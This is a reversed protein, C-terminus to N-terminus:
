PVNRGEVFARAATTQDYGIAEQGAFLLEYKIRDPNLDQWQRLAVAKRGEITLAPEGHATRTLDQETAAKFQASKIEVILARGDKRRIIFDPTYRHWKGDEGLYEVYFDTKDPTTLAGTFYIDEVQDPHLNVHALLQDFFSQEPASDFNYPDYHFGFGAPDRRKLAEWSTLLAQRDVPYSIEATYVEASGEVQRTFGSPKVLAMAVEVTEERVEYRRTQAEVQRALEPLHVAPMESTGDGYLRRLEDYIAWFDLRYITALETAAAYLGVTEPEGYYEVTDRVQHLVSKGAADTGLDYARM